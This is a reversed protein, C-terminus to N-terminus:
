MATMRSPAAISDGSIPRVLALASARCIVVVTQSVVPTTDSSAATVAPASQRVVIPAEIPAANPPLAPNSVM